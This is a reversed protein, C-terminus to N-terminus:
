RCADEGGGKMMSYFQKFLYKSDEPGPLAEPHYQVSFVPLDRHRMGEITGDNLNVHTVQLGSLALSREDVVFGHNQSTIYVRGTALDKVPHNAGRHGFKLKYTDAGMALAIIQHGLCIGFVPLRGILKEAATIAYGAAKPDGPGNSILVGDPSSALITEAPAQAPFVKVGCGLWALSKLINRKVGLDLVAVVPSGDCYVYEKETTVEQVLDQDGTGPLAAARVALERTDRGVPAIIGKMAGKERIHRTLARTDIGEVGPIGHQKLYDDLTGESMYHNPTRCLERVILARVKPSASQIYSENVGYNGILPYTMIVIQGAYSPDTLIEQYGTMGTNFVVEGWTETRAGFARGYFVKGDELVLATDYM